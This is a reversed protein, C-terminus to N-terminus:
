SLFEERSGRRCAMFKIFSERGKMGEDKAIGSSGRVSSKVVIAIMSEVRKNKKLWKKAFGGSGTACGTAGTAHCERV